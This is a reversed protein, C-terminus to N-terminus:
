EIWPYLCSLGSAQQMAAMSSIRKEQCFNGDRIPYSFGKFSM